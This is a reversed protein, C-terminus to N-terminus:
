KTVAVQIVIKGLLQVYSPIIGNTGTLLIRFRVGEMRPETEGEPVTNELRFVHEAGDATDAFHLQKVIREPSEPTSCRYLDENYEEVNDSKKSTIDVKEKLPDEPDVLFEHGGLGSTGPCEALTKWAEEAPDWYQLDYLYQVSGTGASHMQYLMPVQMSVTFEEPGYTFDRMKGAGNEVSFEYTYASGDPKFARYDVQYERLDGNEADGLQILGRSYVRSDTPDITITQLETAGSRQSSAVRVELLEIENMYDQSNDTTVGNADKRVPWEIIIAHENATVTGAPLSFVPSSDMELTGEETNGIDKFTWEYWAIGNEDLEAHAANRIVKGNKDLAKPESASFVMSGLSLKYDLPLNKTSRLTVTYDQAIESVDEPCTGNAVSFPFVRATNLNSDSSYTMGPEFDGSLLTKGFQEPSGDGLTLDGTEPDRGLLVVNYGAAGFSAYAVSAQTYKATSVGILLISMLVIYAGSSIMIRKLKKNM